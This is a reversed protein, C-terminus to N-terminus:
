ISLILIYVHSDNSNPSSHELFFVLLICIQKLPFWNSVYITFFIIKLCNLLNFSSFREFNLKYKDTGFLDWFLYTILSDKLLNIIFLM